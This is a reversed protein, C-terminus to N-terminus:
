NIIYITIHTTGACLDSKKRKVSNLQFVFHAAIIVFCSNPMKHAGTFTENIATFQKSIYVSM